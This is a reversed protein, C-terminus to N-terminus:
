CFYRVYSYLYTDQLLGGGGALGVCLVRRLHYIDLLLLITVLYYVVLELHIFLNIHM